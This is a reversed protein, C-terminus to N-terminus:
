AGDEASGRPVVVVPCAAGHVVAESVSGLLVSRVPGYGRSGILLLDLGLESEAVLTTAPDGSRFRPEARLESPLPGVAVRLAEQLQEYATWRHDQLAAGSPPPPGAYVSIVRLAASAARGLQIGLELAGHSEPSADFAIGIVRPEAPTQQTYGHPAVAIPCPAGQLLREGVGTPLIHAVGARQIAGLVLMAASRSEALEHLVRAPSDGVRLELVPAEGKTPQDGGTADDSEQSESVVRVRTLQAGLLPALLEGLALADRGEERGNDGVIILNM